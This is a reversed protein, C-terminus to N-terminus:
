SPLVQVYDREDVEAYTDYISSNIGSMSDLSIQLSNEKNVPYLLHHILGQSPKEYNAILGKLNPFMQKKVGEATQIMYLGNKEQTIRYTYILRGFLICLCFAGAVSESDRLLYSGNKGRQVLLNEGEKKSLNGHYCALDM